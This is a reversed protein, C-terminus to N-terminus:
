IKEACGPLSGKLERTLKVIEVLRAKAEGRGKVEVSGKELTKASVVVRTPIGILDSDAFKEGARISPRDDYLVEVGARILNEYLQDASGVETQNKCLSILHAQYPAVSSPWMIGKDDHHIEAITGLIRTSGIGYCGMIVPESQGNENVFNFDFADSYKTGLKFINGVEIAKEERLDTADCQPCKNGVEAFIERNVAIDCHPCVYIIDEGASTVTQYEHSYKSFTGGSAFTLYTMQRIGCREYVRFYAEQAKKYYEDLEVTSSHFSYLDKMRFERGRLIGSKARPEDRFKTQIQYVAKPLDKYSVIFKQALPTVVEEHTAGLAYEKDGNDILKFLVTLGNWRKTKEWNEKPHLAPMFIEQGGIRDMEERIIQEIKTLVRYGLPLMTYVGSFLKDVFGGRILLKANQSVEDKPAEKLTKTFLHSQRM